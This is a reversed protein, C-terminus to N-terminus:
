TVAVLRVRFVTQEGPISEIELSGQHRDVIEKCIALGLGTGPINRDHALQGRFFRECLRPIEDAPIGPGNDTVSLLLHAGIQNQEVIARIVVQGGDDTYALANGVLNTLVQELRYPEALVKPLERPIDFELTICRSEAKVLFSDMLKETVDYISTPQLQLPAAETELRSLDLLDQILGTLRDTEHQLVSLYHEKREPKGRQLLTLYTKINTLPTRLEHSVNSVFKSKLRDVEKLHSIDSHIGVFGTLDGIHSHIPALTLHADYVTGDRRRNMMEGSWPQGNQIALWMERNPDVTPTTQAVTHWLRPTQGLSDAVSYGTLRTMAPNVYLIIGNRDTFFVGEGASDLVAQNRDREARLETTRRSVEHALHATYEKLAEYLTARELAIGVQSALTTLFRIDSDSFTNLQPSEVNIVGRVRQKVSLPVAVESRTTPLVQYYLPERSVDQLLFPQGTRAVYGTISKEFPIAKQLAEPPVGHYSPHAQLKGTRSDVLVFGFVDPYLTAAILETTQAILDDVNVTAATALAVQHLIALENARQRTEEHLRANEIAVAAQNAFALVMEGAEADYANPSASDVNVIGLFRGKVRLAAGIWSRIYENGLSTNWREDGHTDPMVIIKQDDGWRQKLTPTTIQNVIKKALTVDPFGRGAAMFTQEGDILQISVSDYEVVHALLDLLQEFVDNLSLRSTLLAGVQQLTQSLRLQRREAAFLRANEIAVAAQNAFAAVTEGTAEDYGNAQFSNVNLMGVTRGQVTLAVSIWSRIQSWIPPKQWEEALHTDAVVVMRQQQWSQRLLDVDIESMRRQLSELDYFGRAALLSLQDKQGLLMITASDYNVIQALLDFIQECLAEPQISTTLLGGVAQMTQSLRLQTRQLEFLRAHEFAIAAQQAIGQALRIEAPTFERQYRSEWLESYGLVEDKVVLPVTLISQAGRRRLQIREVERLAPDDVQLQRASDPAYYSPLGDGAVLDYAAGRDSVREELAAAEAYYDALVRSTQREPNWDVIYVSTVGLALGLQEAVRSLVTPLDLTSSVATSAALIATQEALSRQVAEFLQANEVAVAVHQALTQVMQLDTQNFFNEHRSDVMLAGIMRGRIALPVAMFSRIAEAGPVWIWGPLRRVDGSLVPQLDARMVAFIPSHELLRVAERLTLNEDPYGPTVVLEARNNEGYVYVGGMDFTLVRRLQSLSRRLIENRDLSAAVTQAVEGMVEARERARRELDYLRANGIVGALVGATSKLATVELGTWTREQECDDLGLFGWWEGAVHIPVAAMSLISQDKFIVQEEHPFAQVLGYIPQGNALQEIWRGFGRQEYDFHHLVPNNLESTQGPAVWECRQSTLLRGDAARENEFIYARSVRVATGIDALVEAFTDNLDAHVVLKQSTFALAEMIADRRHLAEEAQKRETIDELIGEYYLIQGHEDRVARASDKVWIIQGDYRRIRVEFGRVLGDRDMLAQWRSREGPDVYAAAASSGILMDRAPVGAIQLLARNGDLILGDITTRYLGVPVGDVLSRESLHGDPTPTQEDFM